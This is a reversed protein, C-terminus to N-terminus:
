STRVAQFPYLDYQQHELLRLSVQDALVLSDLIDSTRQMEYDTLATLNEYIGANVLDIDGYNLM